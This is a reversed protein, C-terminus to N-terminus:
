NDYNKLFEIAEDFTSVGIIEIDYKKENKIKLAEEYNEGSPVIFLKAHKKVAGILKYKVGGISGINGDLEITGTGVILRGGTIDEEVLANYIALSTMLGGSPGSESDKVKISVEPDTTIDLIEYVIIGVVKNKDINKVVATKNIEKNNSNVLFNITDGINSDSIIDLIQQKNTIIVDNVSIIEDGVNLNTEADKDVYAVYYNRNEISYSKGAKKYANIIANNNAEKQSLKNRLFLEQISENELLVDKNKLIDWDSNFLAYILTPIVAPVDSVYAMNFSGSSDYSNDMDIRQTVNIYGGPAEITFPLRVTFLIVCALLFILFKLNKLFIEKVKEYVKTFM